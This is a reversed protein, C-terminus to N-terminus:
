RSKYRRHQPDDAGTGLAIMGASARVCLLATLGTARPSPASETIHRIANLRDGCPPERGM